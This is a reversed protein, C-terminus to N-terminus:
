SNMMMKNNVDDYIFLTALIILMRVVKDVINSLM